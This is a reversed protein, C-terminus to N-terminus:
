ALTWDTESVVRILEEQRESDIRAKLHRFLGPAYQIEDIVLPPPFEELFLGPATEAKEARSPLDLSVFRHSPFLHKALM